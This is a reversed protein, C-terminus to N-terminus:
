ADPGKVSQAAEDANSVHAAITAASSRRRSRVLFVVLVVVAWFVGLGILAAAFGIAAGALGGVLFSFTGDYGMSNYLYDFAALFGLCAGVALMALTGLVCLTIILAKKV